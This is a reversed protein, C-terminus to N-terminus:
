TRGAVVDLARKGLRHIAAQLRSRLPARQALTPVAGEPPMDHFSWTIGKRVVRAPVGVAVCGSPIPRTVVSRAGIVASKGIKAGPNILTDLGLWVHDGIEVASGFKNVRKQTTEDLVAHMDDTHIKINDAWLNDHGVYILGGNRANLHAANISSLTGALAVTSREGCFIHANPLNCAAGLFVAPADGWTLIQIPLTCGPGVIVVADRPPEIGPHCSLPITLNAPAYLANGRECWWDPVCDTRLAIGDPLTLSAAASPARQRLRVLIAEFASGIDKMTGYVPQM